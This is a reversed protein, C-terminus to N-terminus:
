LTGLTGHISKDYGVALWPLGSEGLLNLGKEAGALM